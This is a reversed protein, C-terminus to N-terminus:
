RGAGPYEYVLFDEEQEGSGLGREACPGRVRALQPAILEIENYEMARKRAVTFLTDLLAHAAAPQWADLVVMKLYLHARNAAQALIMVGALDTGDFAGWCHGPAVYRAALLDRSYPFARWGDPLLGRTADLYGGAELFGCASAADEIRRVLLGRGAAPIAAAAELEAKTGAWVKCSLTAYRRFGMRENATISALNRVSTSFRVSRLGPRGALARLFHATVTTTVGKTALDPDKRLGEFWADAPTLFTLKGCGVLREGLFVAAFEGDRDAVWDDFVAPLYDTGDWIRAAIAMLAPKDAPTMRRVTFQGQGGQM